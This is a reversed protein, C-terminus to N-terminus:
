SGCPITSSDQCSGGDQLISWGFNPVYELLQKTPQQTFIVCDTYAMISSCGIGCTYDREKTGDSGISYWSGWSGNAGYQMDCGVAPGVSFLTVVVLGIAACLLKKRM